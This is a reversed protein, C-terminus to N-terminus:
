YDSDDDNNEENVDDGNGDDNNSDNHDHQKSFKWIDFDSKVFVLVSM